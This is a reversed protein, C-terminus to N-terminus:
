SHRPCTHVNHLGCEDLGVSLSLLLGLPSPSSGGDDQKSRKRQTFAHPPLSFGVSCSELRLPRGTVTHHPRIDRGHCASKLHFPQRRPCRLIYYIHYSYFLSIAFPTQNPSIPSSLLLHISTYLLFLLILLCASTKDFKM